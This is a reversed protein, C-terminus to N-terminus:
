LQPSTAESGRTLASACSAEGAAACPPTPCTFATHGALKGLM